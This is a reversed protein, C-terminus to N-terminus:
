RNVLESRRITRRHIITETENDEKKMEETTIVEEDGNRQIMMPKRTIKVSQSGGPSNNFSPGPPPLPAYGNIQPGPSSVFRHSRQNQNNTFHAFQTQYNSSGSERVSEERRSWETQGDQGSDVRLSTERISSRPQFYSTSTQPQQATSTNTTQSTM